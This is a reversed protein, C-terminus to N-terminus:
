IMLKISSLDQDVRKGFIIHSSTYTLFRHQISIFSDMKTGFVDQCSESICNEKTLKEQFFSNGQRLPFAFGFAFLFMVM